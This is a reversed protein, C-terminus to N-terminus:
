DLCRWRAQGRGPRTNRSVIGAVVQAVLRRVSADRGRPRSEPALGQEALYGSEARAELPIEIPPGIECRQHRAPM